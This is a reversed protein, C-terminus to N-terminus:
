SVEEEASARGTARKWIRSQCSCLRSRDASLLGSPFLLPIELCRGTEESAESVSVKEPADPSSSPSCSGM